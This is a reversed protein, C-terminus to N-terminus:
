SRRRSKQREPRLVKKSRGDDKSALLDIDQPLEADDEQPSHHVNTTRPRMDMQRSNPQASSIKQAMGLHKRMQAELENLATDSLKLVRARLEESFPWESGDQRDWPLPELGEVQDLTLGLVNAIERYRRAPVGRKKWNSVVQITEGLAEALWMPGRPPRKRALAEEIVQWPTMDQSDSSHSLAVNVLEV